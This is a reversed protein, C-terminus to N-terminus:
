LAEDDLEAAVLQEEGDRDRRQCGAAGRRGRHSGSHSRTGGWAAMAFERNTGAV